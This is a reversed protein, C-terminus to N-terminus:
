STFRKSSIQMAAHANAAMGIGDADAIGRAVAFV